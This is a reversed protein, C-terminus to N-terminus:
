AKISPPPREAFVVFVSLGTVLVTPGLFTTLIAFLRTTAVEVNAFMHVYTCGLPLTIFM